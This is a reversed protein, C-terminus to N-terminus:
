GDGGGVCLGTVAAVGRGVLFIYEGPTLFRGVLFGVGSGVGCVHPFM